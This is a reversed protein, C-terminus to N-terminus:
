EAAVTYSVSAGEYTATVDWCGAVPLDLITLMACGDLNGWCATTARPTSVRTGTHLETATMHLNPLPERLGDFGLRWWFSKDRREAKGNLPLRTWLTDTGYWFWGPPPAAVVSPPPVFPSAPPETVSCTSQGVSEVPQWTGIM